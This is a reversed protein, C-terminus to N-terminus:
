AAQKSELWNIIRDRDSRIALNYRPINYRVAINWATRTGGEPVGHIDPIAWCVVMSSFTEPNLGPGLIQYVNRAHLQKADESCKDWAPHITSALHFAIEYDDYRQANFVKLKPCHKRRHAFDKHIFIEKNLGQLGSEFFSDAGTAAGSRLIWGERELKAAIRKMLPAMEEPTDRSGIGAYYSM